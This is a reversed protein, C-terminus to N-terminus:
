APVPLFGALPNASPLPFCERSVLRPRSIRNRFTAQYPRPFGTGTVAFGHVLIRTWRLFPTSVIFAHNLDVVARAFRHIVGFHAMVITVTRFVSTATFFGFRSTFQATQNLATTVSKRQNNGCPGHHSMGGGARIRPRPLGEVELHAGEDQPAERGDAAAGDSRRRPHRRIQQRTRALAARVPPADFRPSIAAEKSKAFIEDAMTAVRAEWEAETLRRVIQNQDNRLVLEARNRALELSRSRSVGFICFASM